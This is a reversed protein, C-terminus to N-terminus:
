SQLLGKDKLRLRLNELADALETFADKKRLRVPPIDKGDALMDTIKKLRHIAGTIRHAHFFSFLVSAVCVIGLIVFSLWAAKNFDEIASMYGTEVSEQLASLDRGLRKRQVPDKFVIASDQSTYTAYQIRIMEEIPKQEAMWYMWKASHIWLYTSLAGMMLAPFVAFAMLKLQKSPYVLYKRRKNHRM